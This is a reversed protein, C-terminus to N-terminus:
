FGYVDLVDKGEAGTEGHILVPCAQPEFSNISKLRGYISKSAKARM